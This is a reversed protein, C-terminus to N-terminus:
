SPSFQPRIRVCKAHQSVSVTLDPSGTLSIYSPLKTPWESSTSSDGQPKGLDDKTPTSGEAESSSMGAVHKLEQRASRRVTVGGPRARPHVLRCRGGKACAGTKAFEPCRLIHKKKCKEGLLCTGQLFRDCVKADPGVNVHLYPCGVRGCVGRLFFSCVPMKEKSVEHSFPCSEVKCTGRLFRTCVVVKSPDHVFRCNEKKCKGYRNYFVCYQKVSGAKRLSARRAHNMSRNVVRHAIQVTKLGTRRVLTGPRTQVYTAGGIDIRGLSADSCSNEDRRLTMGDEGVHYRVGRVFLTSMKKPRRVNRIVLSACRKQRAASQSQKKLKNRTSKYLMGGIVVLNGTQLSANIGRPKRDANKSARKFKEVLRLFSVPLTSQVNGGLHSMRVRTPNVVNATSRPSYRIKHRSNSLNLRNLNTESSKRRRILKYKGVKRLAPSQGSSRRVRSRTDSLRRASRAKIVEAAGKRMNKVTSPTTFLRSSKISTTANADQLATSSRAFPSSPVMKGNGTKVLKYKGLKQLTSHANSTNESSTSSHEVCPTSLDVWAKVSKNNVLKYEGVSRMGREKCVTTPIQKEAANTLVDSHLLEKVAATKQVLRRYKVDNAETQSARKKNQDVGLGKVNLVSARRSVPKTPLNSCVHSPLSPLKLGSSCNVSGISVQKHLVSAARLTSSQTVQAIAPQKIWARTNRYPKKNGKSHLCTRTNYLSQKADRDRPLVGTHMVQARKHASILTTLRDIEEQIQNVETASDM